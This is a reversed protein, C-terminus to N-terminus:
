ILKKLRITFLKPSIIDFLYVILIVIIYNQLIYIFLKGSRYFSPFRSQQKATKFGYVKRFHQHFLSLPPFFLYYQRTTAMVSNGQSVCTTRRAMGDGSTSVDLVRTAMRGGRQRVTPCFALYLVDTGRRRINGRWWCCAKVTNILM